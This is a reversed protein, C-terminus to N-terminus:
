PTSPIDPAVKEEMRPPVVWDGWFRAVREVRTLKDESELQILAPARAVSRMVSAEHLGSPVIVSQHKVLSKGQFDVFGVSSFSNPDPEDFGGDYFVFWLRSM